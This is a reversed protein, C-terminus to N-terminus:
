NTFNLLNLFKEAKAVTEYYEAVPDSEIVIGSGAFFNFISTRKDIYGTRIAISSDMTKEDRIVFFSGCYIDRPHPELEDILEMARRKPCGTVSGGPFADILLDICTSDTRLRGEVTSYMQLLNDVAFVSKHESVVVSGYECNRSIDNRILDVIMSLEADEKPSERLGGVLEEDYIDFRLTGKIPRSLVRGDRVRLFCEPSTSLIFYNGTDFFAYYAAPRRMFLDVATQASIASELQASYRLSLSLQYVDGARIYDLTRGVRDIYEDRSLSQTVDHNGRLDIGTTATPPTASSITRGIRDALKLDHSDVFLQQTLNKYTVVAAYKKVHGLPFDSRHPGVSMIAKGYDYSLFGFTPRRDAFAFRAIDTRNTSAQISLEDTAEIGVYCTGEGLLSKDSLYLDCDISQSLASAISLFHAM